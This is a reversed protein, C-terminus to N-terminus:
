QPYLPTASYSCCIWSMNALHIVGCPNWGGRMSSWYFFKTKNLYEQIAQNMMDNQKKPVSFTFKGGSM